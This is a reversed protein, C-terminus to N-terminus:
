NAMGFGTGHFPLGIAFQGTAVQMGQEATQM